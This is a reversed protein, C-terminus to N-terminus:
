ELNVQILLFYKLINIQFSQPGNNWLYYILGTVDYSIISIENPYYGYNKYFKKNFAKFNKLNVSPFYFSKISSESVISDDFWQNATLILIEKESVDTYAM